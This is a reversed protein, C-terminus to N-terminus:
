RRLSLRRVRKSSSGDGNNADPNQIDSNNVFQGDLDGKFIQRYVCKPEFELQFLSEITSSNVAAVVGHPEYPCKRISSDSSIDIYNNFDYPCHGNVLWSTLCTDASQWKDVRNQFRYIFDGIGSKGMGNRVFEQELIFHLKGTTMSMCQYAFNLSQRDKILFLKQYKPSVLSITDEYVSIQVQDAVSDLQTYLDAYLLSSITINYNKTLKLIGRIQYWNTSPSCLADYVKYTKALNTRFSIGHGDVPSPGLRPRNMMYCVSANPCNGSCEQMHLSVIKSVSSTLAM